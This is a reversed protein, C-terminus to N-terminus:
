PLTPDFALPVCRALQCQVHQACRVQILARTGADATMVASQLADDESPMIGANLCEFCVRRTRAGTGVCLRTACSTGAQAVRAESLIVSPAGASAVSLVCVSSLSITEFAM